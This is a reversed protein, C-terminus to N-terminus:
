KKKIEYKDIFKRLFKLMEEYKEIGINNGYLEWAKYCENWRDTGSNMRTLFYLYRLIMENNM